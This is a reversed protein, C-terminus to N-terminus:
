PRRSSDVVGGTFAALVRFTGSIDYFVLTLDIPDRAPCARAPDIYVDSVNIFALQSDRSNACPVGM